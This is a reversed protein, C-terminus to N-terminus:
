ALQAHVDGGDDPKLDFTVTYEYVDGRYWTQVLEVPKRGSTLVLREVFLLPEGVSVGLRQSVEVNAPQARISQEAGVLAVGKEELLWMLSKTKLEQEDLLSGFHEPLYNVTYAFVRGDMTRTRTLRTATTGDIGLREAIRSPVDVGRDLEVTKVRARRTETMLDALSGRFRQGLTTRASRTVFTGVGQQREVLGAQRIANVAQRITGRSVGFEVQLEDESPFIAGGAYVNDAIRDRLVSAIQHYLPVPANREV